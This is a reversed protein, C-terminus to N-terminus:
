MREITAILKELEPKIGKHTAYQEIFQGRPNGEVMVWGADTFAVDWGCYQNGSVVKAMETVLSVVENWHPIVFGPIIVGSDPHRIYSNHKEDEGRMVVIGTTADIPAIIGGSSANDVVANGSGMRLCPHFVIVEDGVRVTPIRCTNVSGQHLVAMEKAQVILEECVVAGKSMVAAFLEDVSLYDKSHYISIGRGGSGNYPKVIFSKHRSTFSAFLEKDYKGTLLILERKYYEGFVDYAKKKDNFIDLNERQNMRDYYEWRKKDTIFTERGAVNLHEFDFMFYEDFMCGFRHLSYVMDYLYHDHQEQTIGGGAFIEINKDILKLGKTFYVPDKSKYYDVYKRKWFDSKDARKALWREVPSDIKWSAIGDKSQIKKVAM